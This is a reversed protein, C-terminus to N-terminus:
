IEINIRIPNQNTKCILAEDEAHWIGGIMYVQSKLYYDCLFYEMQGMKYTM